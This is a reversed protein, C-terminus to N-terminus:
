FINKMNKCLIFIGTGRFAIGQNALVNIQSKTHSKQHSTNLGVRSKSSSVKAKLSCVDYLVEVM